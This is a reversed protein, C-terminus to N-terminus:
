YFSLDAWTLYGASAQQKPLFWDFHRTRPLMHRNRQMTKQHGSSSNARRRFNAEDRVCNRRSCIQATFLDAMWAIRIRHRINAATM